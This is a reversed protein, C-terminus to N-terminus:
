SFNFGGPAGGFGAGGGGANGGFAFQDGQVVAPQDEDDEESPYYTQLIQLAKQYVDENAHRQLAELYDIGHSEEVYVAFKNDGNDKASDKHGVRLINAIGELAVMTIKPDPSRFLAVMPAIVGQSVLYRIQQDSGGSTLNSLAWCAEKRIDFSASRLLDVLPPIINNDIVASIQERSGATINSITWCAEKRISKKTHKLLALLLPLAGVHIVTQTQLDDGTVINGITRLAPTKVNANQHMLLEVIRRVAGSTIVAQIKTNNPGTDDSLYSLAWCADTLVEDDRSWVLQALVPLCAAVADFQPQPKGRCLNSVAWTANRILSLSAHPECLQLLPGLAGNSLVLDRCIHSDGAINGLGWVAQERVDDDTSRLLQVFVPVANADVVAKTHESTGSAINTLAWASEFQLKPDQHYTLFHVLRPVVGAAIIRSIPPHREISLLKRLAQVSTRVVGPDPSDLSMCLSPIQDLQAQVAPEYHPVAGGQGAAGFANQGAAGGGLPTNEDGGAAFRAGGGRHRRKAIQQERRSKRLQVANEERKRRGDEASISKKYEDARGETRSAM